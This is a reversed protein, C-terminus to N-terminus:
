FMVAEGGLVGLVCLSSFVVGIIIARDAAINSVDPIQIYRNTNANQKEKADKADKAAL